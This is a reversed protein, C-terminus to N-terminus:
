QVGWNSQGALWTDIADRTARRVKLGCCFRALTQRTLKTQQLLQEEGVSLLHSKTAAIKDPEGAINKSGMPGRDTSKFTSINSYTMLSTGGFEWVVKSMGMRSAGPVDRSITLLDILTNKILIDGIHTITLSTLVILGCQRVGVSINTSIPFLGCRCDKSKLQACWRVTGKRFKAGM